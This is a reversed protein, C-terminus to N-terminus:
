SYSDRAITGALGAVKRKNYNALINQPSPKPKEQTNARSNAMFNQKSRTKKLGRSEVNIPNKRRDFQTSMFM